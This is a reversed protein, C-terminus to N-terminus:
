KKKRPNVQASLVTKQLRQYHHTEAHTLQQAMSHIGVAELCLLFHPLILLTHSILAMFFNQM